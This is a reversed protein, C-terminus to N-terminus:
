KGVSLSLWLVIRASQSGLSYHLRVATAAGVIGVLMIPLETVWHHRCADVWNICGYKWHEHLMFQEDFALVVMALSLWLGLRVPLTRDAALRLALVAIAWLQASSLWSVPSNDSFFAVEPTPWYLVGAVAMFLTVVALSCIAPWLVYDPRGRYSLREPANKM